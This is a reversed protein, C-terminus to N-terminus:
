GSTRAHCYQSGEEKESPHSLKISLLERWPEVKLWSFLRGKEQREMKHANYKELLHEREDTLCKLPPPRPHNETFRQTPTHQQSM